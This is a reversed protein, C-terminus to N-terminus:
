CSDTNHTDEKSFHHQKNLTFAVPVPTIFEPKESNQVVARKGKEVANAAAKRVEIRVLTQIVKVALLIIIVPLVCTLFLRTKLFFAKRKLLKKKKLLERHKRDIFAQLNRM